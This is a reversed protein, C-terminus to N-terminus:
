RVEALFCSYGGLSMLYVPNSYHPRENLIILIIHKNRIWGSLFALCLLTAALTSCQTVVVLLTRLICKVISSVDTRGSIGSISCRRRESSCRPAISRAAAICRQSDAHVSICRTTMELISDLRKLTLDALRKVTNDHLSKLYM